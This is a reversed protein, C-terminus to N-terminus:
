GLTYTSVSPLQTTGYLRASHVLAPFVASVPRSAVDRRTAYGRSKYSLVRSQISSEALLDDYCFVTEGDEVDEVGKRLVSSTRCMMTLVKELWVPPSSVFLANLRTTIPHISQHMDPHLGGLDLLNGGLRLGGGETGLDSLALENEANRM